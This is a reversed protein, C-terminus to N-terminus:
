KRRVCGPKKVRASEWADYELWKGAEARYSQLRVAARQGSRYDVGRLLLVGSPSLEVWLPAEGTTDPAAADLADLAARLRKRNVVARVGPEVTYVERVVAEGDGERPVRRLVQTRRRVGDSMEVEVKGDEAERVDAHELLGGFKRDRTIDKGIGGAVDSELHVATRNATDSLPVRALHAEELPGVAIASFRNAAVAAGDARLIVNGDDAKAVAAAASIAGKSFIM